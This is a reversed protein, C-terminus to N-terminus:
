RGAGCSRRVVLTTPIVQVIPPLDPQQIREVLKRVAFQGILDKPVHLTTLPPDLDRSFSLDDFGTVAIDDPVRLGLESAARMAGIAILDSACVLVDPRREMTNLLEKFFPYAEETTWGTLLCSNESIPLQHRLMAERFAETREDDFAGTIFRLDRHGLAILHEILAHIARRKEVVINDITVPTKWEHEIAVTLEPEFSAEAPLTSRGICLLGDIHKHDLMRRQEAQELDRPTLTFGVRYQQRHIEENVSDFIESWFPDSFKLFRGGTLLGINGTQRIGAVKSEQPQRTERPEYHLAQMAERIREMTEHAIPYNGHIARSVTAISVGARRAVDQLTAGM